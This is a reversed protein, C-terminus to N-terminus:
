TATTFNLLYNFTQFGGIYTLDFSPFHYTINTAIALNATQYNTSTFPQIFDRPNVNGPNNGPFMNATVPLTTVSVVTPNLGPVNCGAGDATAPVGPLGCLGYFSSPVLGGNLFLNDPINGVTEETHYNAKSEGSSAMAWVDLHGFDAAVQAELYHETGSSGLSINGGQPPGDLNNFYGGSDDTYMGGLRIRVHDSIPGSVVAEGMYEGYNAVSARGEAYYTSTPRQSTYSITGGDSNSGHLTNQPGRDVEINSIFLDDKQLIIAANAGYYVGNYYTAVASATSLNDTNRGVGRIYPRDDIATYSLGPTVDTIDQLTSIGRLARQQASLATVAVPVTDINEERRQATVILEGVTPTAEATASAEAAVGPSAWLGVVATM